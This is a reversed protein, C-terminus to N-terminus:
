YKELTKRGEHFDLFMEFTEKPLFSEESFQFENHRKAGDSHKRFGDVPM